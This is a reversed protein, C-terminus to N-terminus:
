PYRSWLLCGRPTNGAATSHRRAPLGKRTREEGVPRVINGKIEEVTERQLPRGILMYYGKRAAFQPLQQYDPRKAGGRFDKHYIVREYAQVLFRAPLQRIHEAFQGAAPLYLKNQKNGVGSFYRAPDIHDKRYATHLNQRWKRGCTEPVVM